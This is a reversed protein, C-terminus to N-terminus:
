RVLSQGGYVVPIHLVVDTLWVSVAATAQLMIITSMSSTVYHVQRTNTAMQLM